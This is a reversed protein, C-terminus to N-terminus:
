KMPAQPSVALLEWRRCGFAAVGGADSSASCQLGNRKQPTPTASWLRLRLCLLRPSAGARERATRCFLAAEDSTNACHHDENPPRQTTVLDSSPRMQPMMPLYSQAPANACNSLGARTPIAPLKPPATSWVLLKHNLVGNDETLVQTQMAVPLVWTSVIRESDAKRLVGGNYHCM